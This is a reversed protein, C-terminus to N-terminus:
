LMIRCKAPTKLRYNLIQLCNETMTLFMNQMAVESVPNILVIKNSRFYGKTIIAILMSIISGLIWIVKRSKTM